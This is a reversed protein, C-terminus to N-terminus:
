VRQVSIGQAGLGAPGQLICSYEQSTHRFSIQASSAARRDESSKYEGTKCRMRILPKCYLVSVRETLSKRSSDIAGAGLKLQLHMEGAWPWGPACAPVTNVLLVWPHGGPSARM